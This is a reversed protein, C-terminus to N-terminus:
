IFHLFVQLLNQLLHLRSHLGSCVLIGMNKGYCLLIHLIIVVAIDAHVFHGLHNGHTVAVKATHKFLLKMLAKRFINQGDSHSLGLPQHFFIGCDFYLFHCFQNAIFAHIGKGPRVLLVIM